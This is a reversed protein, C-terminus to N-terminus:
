LISGLEENRVLDLLDVVEDQGLHHQPLLAEEDEEVLLVVDERLLDQPHQLFEVILHKDQWFNYINTKYRKCKQLNKGVNKQQFV